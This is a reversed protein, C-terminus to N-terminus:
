GNKYREAIREVAAIFEKQQATHTIIIERYIQREHSFSRQSLIWGLIFAALVPWRDAIASLMEM